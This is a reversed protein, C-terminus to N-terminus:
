LGYMQRVGAMPDVVDEVSHMENLVVTDVMTGDAKYLVVIYENAAESGWSSVTSATMDLLDEDERSMSQQTIFDLFIDEMKVLAGYGRYLVSGKAFYQTAYLSRGHEGSAIEIGDPIYSHIELKGDPSLSTSITADPVIGQMPNSKDRLVPQKCVISNDHICTM